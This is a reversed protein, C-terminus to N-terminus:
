VAGLGDTRNQSQKGYFEFFLVYWYYRRMRRVVMWDKFRHTNAASFMLLGCGFFLYRAAVVPWREPNDDAAARARSGVTEVM